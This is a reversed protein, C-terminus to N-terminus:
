NRSLKRRGFAYDTLCTVVGLVVLALSLFLVGVQFAAFLPQAPLELIAESGQDSALVRFIAHGTSPDPIAPAVSGMYRLVWGTELRESFYIFVTQNAPLNSVAFLSPGRQGFDPTSGLRAFNGHADLIRSGNNAHLEVVIKTITLSGSTLAVAVEHWGRARPLTLNLLTNSSDNLNLHPLREMGDFWFVATGNLTGQVWISLDGDRPLWFSANARSPGTATAYYFEGADGGIVSWNGFIPSIVSPPSFLFVYPSKTEELNWPFSAPNLPLPSAVGSAIDIYGETEWQEAKELDLFLTTESEAIMKPPPPRFFSMRLQPKYFITLGSGSGAQASLGWGGSLWIDGYAVGPPVTFNFFSSFIPSSGPKATLPYLFKVLSLNSDLLAIWVATQNVNEFGVDVTFTYSRMPTLPVIQEASFWHFGPTANAPVSLSLINGGTPAAVLSYSGLGAFHWSSLNSFDSGVILNDSEYFLSHDVALSSSSPILLLNRFALVPRFALNEFVWFSENRYVPKLDTQRLLFSAYSEPAGVPVFFPGARVIAPPGVNFNRNPWYSCKCASDNAEYGTPLVRFNVVIYRVGFRASVAGFGATINDAIPDLINLMGDGPFLLLNPIYNPAVYHNIFYGYNPPMPVLLVKYEHELAHNAILWKSIMQFSDPIEHPSTLFRGGLAPLSADRNYIPDTVISVNFISLIVVVSLLAAGEKWKRSVLRVLLFKPLARQGASPPDSIARLSRPVASQRLSSSLAHSRLNKSFHFTTMLFSLNSILAPLQWKYFSQLPPLSLIAQQLPIPIWMLTVMSFSIACYGIMHGLFQGKMRVSFVAFGLQLTALVLVLWKWYDGLPGYGYTAFDLAKSETSFVLSGFSQYGFYPLAVYALLYALLPILGVVSLVVLIKLMHLGARISDRFALVLFVLGFPLLIIANELGLSSVFAVILGERLIKTGTAPKRSFEYLGGIITPFVAYLWAFNAAVYLAHFIMLPSLSYLIALAWRSHRPVDLRKLFLLSSVVAVPLPLVLFLKEGLAQAPLLTNLASHIYFYPITQNLSSSGYIYVNWFRDILLNPSVFFGSIDNKYFPGSLFAELFFNLYFATAVAAFVADHDLLRGVRRLIRKIEILMEILNATEIRM